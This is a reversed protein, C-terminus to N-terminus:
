HSVRQWVIGRDSSNRFTYPGVYIIDLDRIDVNLEFHSSCRGNAPKLTVVVTSDKNQRKEEVSEVCQGSSSLDGSVNVTTPSIQRATLRTASSFRLETQRNCAPCLLLLLAILLSAHRM